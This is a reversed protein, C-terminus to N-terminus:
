AQGGGGLTPTLQQRKLSIDAETLKQNCSLLQYMPINHLNQLPSQDSASGPSLIQYTLRCPPCREEM